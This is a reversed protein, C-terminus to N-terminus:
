LKLWVCGMMHLVEYLVILLRLDLFQPRLLLFLLFSLDWSNSMHLFNTVLLDLDLNVMKVIRYDMGVAIVWELAQIIMGVLLISGSLKLEQDKNIEVVEKKELDLDREEM